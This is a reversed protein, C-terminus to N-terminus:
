ASRSTGAVVPGRDLLERIRTLLVEPRLPKELTVSYPAVPKTCPEEAYGTVFIVKLYPRFQRIRKVTDPGSLSPMIVDTVMLDINGAFSKAADIANPGDGAPIVHYGNSELTLTLMERVDDRDEALLITEEGREPRSQESKHMTVGTSYARPLYVTFVSGQGVRSEVEM